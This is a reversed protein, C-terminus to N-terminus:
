HEHSANSSAETGVASRLYHVLLFMDSGPAPVVDHEAGAVLAVITGKAVTVAEGAIHVVGQGELVQITTPVPASHAPLATGGRLAVTAVSGTLSKSVSASRM